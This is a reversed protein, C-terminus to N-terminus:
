LGPTKINALKRSARILIKENNMVNINRLLYGYLCVPRGSQINYFSISLASPILANRTNLELATRRSNTTSLTTNDIRKESYKETKNWTQCIVM